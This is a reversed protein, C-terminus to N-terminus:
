ALGRETLAQETVLGREVMERVLAATCVVPSVHKGSNICNAWFVAQDMPEKEKKLFGSKGRTARAHRNKSPEKVTRPVSPDPNQASLTRTETCEPDPPSDTRPTEPDPNIVYQNCGHRGGGIVTKVYGVEELRRVIRRASREEIRAKKAIAAMSPWCNGADDAYDSLALLVLLEGQNQPGSEWVRTM